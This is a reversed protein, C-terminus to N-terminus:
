CLSNLFEEGIFSDLFDYERSNLDDIPFFSSGWDIENGNNDMFKDPFPFTTLPDNSSFFSNHEGSDSSAFAPESSANPIFDLRQYPNTAQTTTSPQLSASLRPGDSGPIGRSPLRRIERVLQDKGRQFKPHYYAGQDSGKNIRRFGYLNLQRQFSAFKSDIFLLKFIISM